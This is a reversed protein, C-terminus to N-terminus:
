VRQDSEALTPISSVSEVDLSALLRKTPAESPPPPPRTPPPPPRPRMPKPPLSPGTAPQDSASGKAGCLVDRWLSRCPLRPLVIPLPYTITPSIPILLRQTRDCQPFFRGCLFKALADRCGDDRPALPLLWSITSCHLSLFFFFMRSLLYM